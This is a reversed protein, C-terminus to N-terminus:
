ATTSSPSPLNALGTLRYKATLLVKFFFIWTNKKGLNGPVHEREKLQRQALVYASSYFSTTENKIFCQQTLIIKNGWRENKKVQLVDIAAERDLWQLLLLNYTRMDVSQTVVWKVSQNHQAQEFRISQAHPAPPGRSSGGAPSRHCRSCSCGLSLPKLASAM